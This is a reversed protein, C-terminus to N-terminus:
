LSWWLLANGAQAIHVMVWFHYLRASRAVLRMDIPVDLLFCPPFKDLSYSEGVGEAVSHKLAPPGLADLEGTESVAQKM